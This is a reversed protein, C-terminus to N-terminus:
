AIHGQKDSLIIPLVSTCLKIYASCCEKKEVTDSYEAGLQFVEMAGEKNICYRELENMYEDM